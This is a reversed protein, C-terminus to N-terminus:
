EGAVRVGHEVHDTPESRRRAKHDESLAIVQHHQRAVLDDTREWCPGLRLRLVGIEIQRVDDEYGQRLGNEDLHYAGACYGEAIEREVCAAAGTEVRVDHHTVRVRQSLQAPHTHDFGSGTEEASIAADRQEHAFS